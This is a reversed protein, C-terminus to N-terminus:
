RWAWRARKIVEENGVKPLKDILRIAEVNKENQFVSFPYYEM